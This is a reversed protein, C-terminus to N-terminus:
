CSPLRLLEPFWGHDKSVYKTLYFSAGRASDYQSVTARGHRIYWSYWVAARDISEAIGGILAHAHPRDRWRSWELFAAYHIPAFAGLLLFWSRITTIARTLGVPNRYTLTVWLDWSFSNLWHAWGRRLDEEIVCPPSCPYGEKSAKASAVNASSINLQQPTGM